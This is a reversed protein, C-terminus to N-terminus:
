SKEFAIKGLYGQFFAYSFTWLISLGRQEIFVVSFFIHYIIPPSSKFLRM